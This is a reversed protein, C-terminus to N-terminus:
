FPLGEPIHKYRTLIVNPKYASLSSTKNCFRIDDESPILVYLFSEWLMM